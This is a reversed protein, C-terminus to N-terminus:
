MEQYVFDGHEDLCICGIVSSGNILPLMYQELHIPSPDCIEFDVEQARAFALAHTLFERPEM